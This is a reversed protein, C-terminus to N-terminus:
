AGHEVRIEVGHTKGTDFRTVYTHPSRMTLAYAGPGHQGIHHREADTRPENLTITAVGLNFQETNNTEAMQVDEGLLTRYLAASSALNEVLVRVDSIGMVGNPHRRAPGYPVRMDRPTADACLFPLAPEATRGIQWLLEVGDPRTRGGDLPGQIHLGRRRARDIDASINDPLLAYAIVGEASHAGRAFLHDEPPPMLFNLLEIYSGDELAILANQTVGDTHEGGAVVAFGLDTYDQNALNLNDVLIVIHDLLM